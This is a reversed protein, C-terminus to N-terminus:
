PRQHPLRNRRCGEGRGLQRVNSRDDAIDGRRLNELAVIRAITWDEVDAAQPIDMRNKAKNLETDGRCGSVPCDSLRTVCPEPDSTATVQTGTSVATATLAVIFLLLKKM